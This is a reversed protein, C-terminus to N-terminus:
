QIGTWRHCQITNVISLIWQILLEKITLWIPHTPSRFSSVFPKFLHQSPNLSPHTSVMYNQNGLLQMIQEDMVINSMNPLLEMNSMLVSQGNIDNMSLRFVICIWNLEIWIYTNLKFCQDSRQDSNDMMKTSFKLFM